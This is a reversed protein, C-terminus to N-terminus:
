RWYHDDKITGLYTFRMNWQNVEGSTANKQTNIANRNGDGLAFTNKIRRNEDDSLIDGNGGVDNGVTYFLVDICIKM